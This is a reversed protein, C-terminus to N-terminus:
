DYGRNDNTNSLNKIKEVYRRNHENKKERNAKNYQKQYEKRREKNAERYQKQYLKMDEKHTNRYEEAKQLRTERTRQYWEKKREKFYEHNDMYYKHKQEYSSQGMILKNVCEHNLIHFGERQHLEKRSNCPFNEVLTMKCNEVTYEDFIDFVSAWGRSHNKYYRYQQRHRAMRQNLTECTSGIYCKSGDNNEIKYIKGTEFKNTIM